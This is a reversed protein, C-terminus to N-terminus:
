SSSVRRGRYEARWRLSQRNFASVMEEGEDLMREALQIATRLQTISLQKYAKLRRDLHDYWCGECVHDLLIRMFCHDQSVVWAAREAARPLLEKTLELYRDQLLYRDALPDLAEDDPAAKDQM